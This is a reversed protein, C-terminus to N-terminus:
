RGREEGKSSGGLSLASEIEQALIRAEEDDEGMATSLLKDASRCLLDDRADLTTLCRGHMHRWEPFRKLDEIEERTFPEPSM